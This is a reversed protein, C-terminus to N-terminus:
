KAVVKVETTKLLKEIHGEFAALPQAGTVLTGKVVNDTTKGLVFTPTGTIQSKRADALDKDIDKDFRDSKMCQLFPEKDLGLIEAFSEFNGQKLIKENKFLADHMQWYQGQEGACHTAIAAPRAQSHFPLPLDRLVLRVKGTDIYKEKLELFTNNYFRKCFPCQYDTFEVLTIPANKDGMVPNGLTSVEATTPRSPRGRKATSLGQKEIKELRKSINKLEELLAEGQEKTIGEARTDSSFGFTVISLTFFMVFCFGIKKM